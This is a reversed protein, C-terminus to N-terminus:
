SGPVTVVPCNAECLVQHPTVWPLHASMRAFSGHHTGMVILDANRSSAVRAIREGPMGVEVVFDAEVGSGSPILERIRRKADETAAELYDSPADTLPKVVHVLTLRAHEREALAIAFELARRSAHQMDTACLIRQLKVEGLEPSVHPGITLVPCTVSGVIEEAISGLLLKKLGGRGHTGLVLLDIDLGEILETLVQSVDGERLLERHRVGGFRESQALGAMKKEASHLLYFPDPPQVESFEERVVHVTYLTAGYRRCLGIAQALAADSCPSFDTACLVNQLSVATPTDM